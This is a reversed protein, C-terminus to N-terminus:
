SAQPSIFTKSHAERLRTCFNLRRANWVTISGSDDRSGYVLQAHGGAHAPTKMIVSTEIM